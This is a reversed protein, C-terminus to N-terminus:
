LKKHLPKSHNLLVTARGDKADFKGNVKFGLNNVAQNIDWNSPPNSM